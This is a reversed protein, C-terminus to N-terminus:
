GHLKEISELAHRIIERTADFRNTKKGSTEEMYLDRRIEIMISRVRPDSHYYRFPVLCGAYPQNFAVELGFSTFIGAVLDRLASPTHYDDTGLCIDPRPVRQYLDCPLPHSPFSHCDVLVCSGNESLERGVAEELARHHPVYFRAILAEREDPLPPKRLPRGDSTKTYIVGMGKEAMPEESDDLFREPDVALRSIPFVVSVSGSFMFLEDTYADTMRILEERLEMDDLLIFPRVEEPIHQSSHPIHLIM